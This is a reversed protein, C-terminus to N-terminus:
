IEEGETARVRVVRIVSGPGELERYLRALYRVTVAKHILAQTLRYLHKRWRGPASGGLLLPCYDSLEVVVKVGEDFQETIFSLEGRTCEGLQVLVGGSIRLAVSRIDGTDAYEPPAFSILPTRFGLFRFDISGEIREPRIVSLTFRRVHVLYRELLFSPVLTASHGGPLTMWQVSYVSADERLIQQCAIERTDM